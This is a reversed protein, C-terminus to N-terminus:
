ARGHQTHRPNSPPQAPCASPTPSLGSRPEPCGPRLGGRGLELHRAVMAARSGVGLKAFIRRLHTCVTWSSISLVDAIVKNPHGQAVMRVIEQERPSLSVQGHAPKPMKVLLYRVGDVEADMMIEEAEDKLERHSALSNSKAVRGVLVRVLEETGPDRLAPSSALGKQSQPVNNRM